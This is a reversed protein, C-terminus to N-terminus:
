NLAKRVKSVLTESTYPKLIYDEAIGDRCEKSVVEEPLSSILIIKPVATEQREMLKMIRSGSVFPLNLDLLILDFKKKHIMALAEAGDSAFSVEYDEKMLIFGCMTRVARDDDIVLIKNM